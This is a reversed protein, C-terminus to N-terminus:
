YNEELDEPEYDIEDDGWAQLFDRIDAVRWSEVGHVAALQEQEAVSVPEDRMLMDVLEQFYGALSEREAASLKDEPLGADYQAAYEDVMQYVAQMTEKPM